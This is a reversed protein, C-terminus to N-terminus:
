SREGLAYSLGEVYGERFDPSRNAHVKRTRVAARRKEVERRNRVRVRKKEIAAGTLEPPSGVRGRLWELQREATMTGVKALEAATFAGPTKRWAVLIRRHVRRAVALYLRARDESIGARLAIQDPRLKDRDAMARVALCVECASMRKRALNEAERVGVVDGGLWETAYVEDMGAARAAALRRHGFVLDWRGDSRARVLVAQLQGVSRMTGAVAAVSAQEDGPEDSGRAAHEAHRVNQADDVVIEALPLWWSRGLNKPTKM